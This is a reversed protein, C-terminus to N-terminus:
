PGVSSRGDRKRALVGTAVALWVCGFVNRVGGPVSRDHEKEGTGARPVTKQDLRQDMRGGERRDTPAASVLCPPLQPFPEGISGTVDYGAKADHGPRLQM